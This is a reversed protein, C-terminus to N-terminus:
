PQSESAVEVEVGVVEPDQPQELTTNIKLCKKSYYRTISNKLCSEKNLQYYSKKSKNELLYNKRFDIVSQHLLCLYMKGNYNVYKRKLYNQKLYEQLFAQDEMDMSIVLTPFQESSQLASM